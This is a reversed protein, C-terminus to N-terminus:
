AIREDGPLQRRGEYVAHLESTNLEGAAVAAVALSTIGDWLTVRQRHRPNRVAALLDGLAEAVSRRYLEQSDLTPVLIGRVQQRVSFPQGRGRMMHGDGFQEVTELQLNPIAALAARESETVLGSLELRTPTWGQIRLFGRDFVLLGEQAELRSPRDFSHTYTALVGDAYRVDAHVIDQQDSGDRALALGHVEVPEAGIIWGYIDFFHVGHEIFIGGSKSRDWFWHDDALGEDGADNRFDVRRLAGFLRRRAVHEAAQYIPSYRMVYDVGVPVSKNRAEEALALADSLRTAVPKEVFVAKGARVAALAMEAHLYPPSAIVVVNVQPHDILEQYRLTWFPVRLDAAAQRTREEHTGALGVLQVDPVFSLASSIFRGFAGGGGIIGLGVPQEPSGM